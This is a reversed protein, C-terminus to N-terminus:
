SPKDLGEEEDTLLQRQVKSHCEAEGHRRRIWKIFRTETNGAPSRVPGKLASLSLINSFGCLGFFDEPWYLHVSSCLPFYLGKFVRRSPCLSCLFMLSSLLLFVSVASFCGIQLTERHHAYAVTLFFHDSPFHISATYYFTLSWEYRIRVCGLMSNNSFALCGCRDTEKLTFLSYLCHFIVRSDEDWGCM